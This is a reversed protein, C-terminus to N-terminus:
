ERMEPLIEDMDSGLAAKWKLSCPINPSGIIAFAFNVEAILLKDIRRRSTYEIYPLTVSKGRESQNISAVVLRVPNLRLLGRQRQSRAYPM